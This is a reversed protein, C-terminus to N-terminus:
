RPACLSERHEGGQRLLPALDDVLTETALIDRHDGSGETASRGVSCLLVAMRCTVSQPGAHLAGTAAAGIGAGLLSMAAVGVMVGVLKHRRKKPAM